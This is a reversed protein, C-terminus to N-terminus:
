WLWCVEAEGIAFGLSRHLGISAANGRVMQSFPVRGRRLMHRMGGLMLARAIGRGRYAPDVELMGLSGEAHTGIIGVLRGGAYAGRMAGARIRGALYDAGIDHSYLAEVREIQDITVPRISFRRKGTVEPLARGWYAAQHCLLEVRLPWAAEVAARAIGGHAVALTPARMRAALEEAEEISIAALMYAGSRAEHILIGGPLSHVVCAHGNRLPELMDVHRLPDDLLFAPVALAHYRM